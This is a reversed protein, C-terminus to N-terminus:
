SKENSLSKVVTSCLLKVVSNLTLLKTVSNLKWSDLPFIPSEFKKDFSVDILKSSLM